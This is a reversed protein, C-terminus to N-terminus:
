KVDAPYVWDPLRTGDRFLESKTIRCSYVIRSKVLRDYEEAHGFRKGQSLGSDFYCDEDFTEVGLLSFRTPSQVSPTSHM